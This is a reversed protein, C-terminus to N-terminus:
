EMPSGSEQKNLAAGIGLGVGAGGNAEGPSKGGVEKAISNGQGSGQTEKSVAGVSRRTYMLVFSHDVHTTFESTSGFTQQVVAEDVPEASEDDFLVWQPGACPSPFKWVEEIKIKRIFLIRM